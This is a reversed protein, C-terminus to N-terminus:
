RDGLSGRLHIEFAPDTTRVLGAANMLLELGRNPGIVQSYWYFRVPQHVPTAVLDERSFVNLIVCPLRVGYKDQYAAAIGSSAATLYRAHPLYKAELFAIMPSSGSGSENMGTHFDEADFGFPVKHRLAARYGVGLAEAHHAIYLDAKEAAALAVLRDFSKEVAREAVGYRFTMTSLARFFKQKISLRLWRQRERSATRRFDVTSLKWDRSRMLEEDFRRQEEHNNVTVVTVLYGAAQFTDAEKLVRPNYSIHRTTVICIKKM